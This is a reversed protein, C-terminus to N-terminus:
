LCTLIIVANLYKNFSIPQSNPHVPNTPVSTALSSLSLSQFGQGHRKSSGPVALRLTM